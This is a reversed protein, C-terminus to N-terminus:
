HLNPSKDSLVEERHTRTPNEQWFVVEMAVLRAIMVALYLQGTLAESMALTRAIPRIPTIDGYGVTTLTMFSFYVWDGIAAVEGQPFNFSGPNLIGAIHFAHAWGLGFLLYVAIAGQIRVHTVRGASFIQLLLILVTVIIAALSWWDSWLIHRSDPQLLAIWRLTLAIGGVLSGAILLKWRGWAIAVGSVLMVSFGIDSYLRVDEKGFGMAPLIFAILVLLVLFFSLNAKSQWTEVILSRARQRVVGRKLEM